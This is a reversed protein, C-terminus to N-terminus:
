TREGFRQRELGALFAAVESTKVRLGRPGYRIARLRGEAIYRYTQRTSVRLRPAVEPVTLLDPTTM